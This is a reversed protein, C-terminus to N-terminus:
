SPRIQQSHPLVARRGFYAGFFLRSYAFYICHRIKGLPAYVLTVIGLIYFWPYAAPIVLWAAAAAMFLSVLLVAFYDDPASVVKLTREVFRFVFGALGFLAGLGCCVALAALLNPPLAPIWPSAILLALTLFIGLHFAVGRLYAAAHLRTSEKAWPAMGLTYAYLIGLSPQGKTLSRDKPRSLSNFVRLRRAFAAASFVLAALTLIQFVLVPNM